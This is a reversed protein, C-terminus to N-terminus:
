YLKPCLKKLVKSSKFQIKNIYDHSKSRLKCLM